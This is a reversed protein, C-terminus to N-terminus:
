KASQIDWDLKLRGGIDPSITKDARLAGEIFTQPDGLADFTKLTSTIYGADVVGSYAAVTYTGADDIASGDALAASVVRAGSLHWPAYELKLGSAALFQTQERGNIVPFRSQFSFASYEIFRSRSIRQKINSISPVLLFDDFTYGEPAKKLKDSFM